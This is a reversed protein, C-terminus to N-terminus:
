KTSYLYQFTYYYTLDADTETDKYMEFLTGSAWNNSYDIELRGFIFNHDPFFTYRVVTIISLHDVIDIGGADEPPSILGYFTGELLTRSIRRIFLNEETTIEGLNKAETRTARNWQGCRDRLVGTTTPLFLTGAISNRPSVDLFIEREDINKTNTRQDSTHTHGIIKTSQNILYQYDLRIDKYYSESTGNPALYFYLLGDFPIPFSGSSIDISQWENTDSSTTIIFPNSIVDWGLNKFYTTSVGDTLIIWCGISRPPAQSIDTKTTVSFDFIDGANAEIPSSMIGGSVSDVNVLYRELENGLYDKIVRIFYVATITSGGPIVPTLWWLAEYEETTQLSTGSGTTSTNLLKGTQQLNFNKLVEVPQRYNFTEKTYKFPRSIRQQLGTEAQTLEGIGIEWKPWGAFMGANEDLFIGNLFTFDEDYLFGPISYDFDRLEPWRIINWYGKAQFLTLFADENDGRFIKELVSYLNDWQSGDYLTQPDIFTQELFCDGASQTVENLNTFIRTHLALGTGSICRKVVELLSIFTYLDVRFLEFSGTTTSVNAPSEVLYLNWVGVGEFMKAVEYLTGGDISIKDGVKVDDGYATPVLIITDSGSLLIEYTITDTSILAYGAPAKDFPIDKLLGLNDSATISIEHRWDAMLESSDDQVIFGEFLNIDTIGTHWVLIAKFEEDDTSYLDALSINNSENILSAVLSSGKIAPKPEDTDWAHIAASVGGKVPIASGVYDKQHIELTYSTVRNSFDCEYKLAYAM